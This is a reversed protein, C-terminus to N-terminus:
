CYFTSGQVYLHVLIVFFRFQPLFWNKQPLAMNVDAPSLNRLWITRVISFILFSFELIRSQMKISFCEVVKCEFCLFTYIVFYPIQKWFPDIISAFFLTEERGLKFGLKFVKNELLFRWNKDYFMIIASLISSYMYSTFITCWFVTM